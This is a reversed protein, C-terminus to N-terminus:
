PQAGSHCDYCNGQKWADGIDVPHRFEVGTEAIIKEGAMKPGQSIIIHCTRCDNMIVTGSSSVHKGDHCRMCGRFTFHGIDNPYDSWKAKMEPFINREYAAQVALIAEKIQKEKQSSVDPYNLRYFDTVGGGVLAYEGLPTLLDSSGSARWGEASGIGPVAALALGAIFAFRSTAAHM